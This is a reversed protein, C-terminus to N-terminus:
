GRANVGAPDMWGHRVWEKDGEGGRVRRERRWVCVCVCVCVGEGDRRLLSFWHLLTLEVTQLAGFCYSVVFLLMTSLFDM